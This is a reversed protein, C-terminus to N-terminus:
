TVAGQITRDRVRGTFARRPEKGRITYFTPDYILGLTAVVTISV